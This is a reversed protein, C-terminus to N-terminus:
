AMGRDHGLGHDRAHVRARHVTNRDGTCSDTHAVAVSRRRDHRSRAAAESSGATSFLEISCQKGYFYSSSKCRKNNNNNNNSKFTKSKTQKVAKQSEQGKLHAHSGKKKKRRHKSPARAAAYSRSDYARINVM